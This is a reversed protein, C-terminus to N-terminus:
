ILGEFRERVMQVFNEVGYIEVMDGWRSGDPREYLVYYLWMFYTRLQQKDHDFTDKAANYFLTMYQPAAPETSDLELAVLEDLLEGTCIIFRELRDRQTELLECANDNAFSWAEIALDDAEVDLNGEADLIPEPMQEGMRLYLFAALTQVDTLM